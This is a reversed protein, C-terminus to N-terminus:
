PAVCVTSRQPLSASHSSGRLHFCLQRVRWSANNVTTTDQGQCRNSVTRFYLRARVCRHLYSCIHLGTVFHVKACTRPHLHTNIGMHLGTKFAGECVHTSTSTHPYAHTSKIQFAGECMRPHPHTYTCMPLGTKIHVKACTRPHLRTHICM